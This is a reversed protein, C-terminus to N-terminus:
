QSAARVRCDPSFYIGIQIKGARSVSSPNRVSACFSRCSDSSTDNQLLQFLAVVEESLIMSDWADGDRRVTAVLEGRRLHQVSSQTSLGKRKQNTRSRRRGPM